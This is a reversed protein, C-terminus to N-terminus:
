GLYAELVPFFEQPVLAEAKQELREALARFHAYLERVPTDIALLHDRLTSDHANPDTSELISFFYNEQHKARFYDGMLAFISSIDLQNRIAFDAFEKKRRWDRYKKRVDQPTHYLWLFIGLFLIALMAQYIGTSRLYILLLLLFSATLWLAFFLGVSGAAERWFTRRAQFVFQYDYVNKM